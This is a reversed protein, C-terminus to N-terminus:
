LSIVPNVEHTMSNVVWWADFSEQSFVGDEAAERLSDCLAEERMFDLTRWNRPRASDNMGVLHLHVTYITVAEGDAVACLDLWTQPSESVEIKPPEAAEIKPPETPPEVAAETPPESAETKPPEAHETPPEVAAETAAPQAAAAKPNVDVTRPSQADVNLALRAAEVRQRAAVSAQEGDAHKWQDMAANYEEQPSLSAAQAAPPNAAAQKAPADLELVLDVTQMQPICQGGKSGAAPTVDLNALREKAEDLIQGLDKEPKPEEAQHDLQATANPTADDKKSMSDPGTNPDPAPPQAYLSSAMRTIGAGFRRMMDTEYECGHKIELVRSDFAVVLVAFENRHEISLQLLDSLPFEKNPAAGLTGEDYYAVKQADVTFYRDTWNRRGFISTGAGKKMMWGKYLAVESGDTAFKQIGHEGRPLVNPMAGDFIRRHNEETKMEFELQLNDLQLTMHIKHELADDEHGVGLISCSSCAVRLKDDKFIRVIAHRGSAQKVDRKESLDELTVHGYVSADSSSAWDIILVVNDGKEFCPAADVLVVGPARLVVMPLFSFGSFRRYRPTGTEGQHYLM